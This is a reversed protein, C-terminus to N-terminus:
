NEKVLFDERTFPVDEPCTIVKNADPSSQVEWVKAQVVDWDLDNLQGKDNSMFAKCYAARSKIPYKQVTLAAFLEEAFIEGPDREPEPEKHIPQIIEGAKSPDMYLIVMLDAPVSYAGTTWLKEAKSSILPFFGDMKSAPKLDGKGNSVNLANDTYIQEIAAYFPGPGREKIIKGAWYYVRPKFVELEYPTYGFDSHLEFAFAYLKAMLEERTKPRLAEWMPNTRSRALEEKLDRIEQTMVAMHRVLFKIDSAELEDPEADELEVPRDEEDRSESVPIQDEALKEAIFAKVSSDSDIYAVAKRKKNHKVLVAACKDAIKYDQESQISNKSTFHEYVSAILRREVGYVRELGSFSKEIKERGM